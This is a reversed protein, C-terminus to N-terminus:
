RPTTRICAVPAAASHAPCRWTSAYASPTAIALPAHAHANTSMRARARTHIRKHEHTHEHTHARARAHAHTFTHAHTITYTQTDYASPVALPARHSTTFSHTLLHTQTKTHANDLAGATYWFEFCGQSKCHSGLSSRSVFALTVRRQRYGEGRTACSVSRM